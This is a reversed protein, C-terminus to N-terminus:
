VKYEPESGYFLVDQINLVKTWPKLELDSVTNRAYTKGVERFKEPINMLEGHTLEKQVTRKGVYTGRKFFAPYDNWNIGKAMLLDHKAKYGAKFLESQSCVSHAAMSLSNRTADTERWLFSESALETNPYQFVRADFVPSKEKHSPISCQILKNFKVSATSAIVSVIKQVRGSFLIPNCVSNLFGLSIEDSQCYGVDANFQHVLEKTSEIMCMSMREDYPRALGKTFKSFARGDLRVVVPSGSLLIGETRAEYSKHLDGLKEFDDRTM